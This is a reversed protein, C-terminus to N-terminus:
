AQHILPVNPMRTRQVPTEDGGAQPAMPEMDQTSTNKWTYPQMHSKYDVVKGQPPHWPSKTRSKPKLRSATCLRWLPQRSSWKLLSRLPVLRGVRPVIWKNPLTSFLIHLPAGSVCPHDDGLLVVPNREKTCVLRWTMPLPPMPDKGTPRDKHSPSQVLIICVIVVM